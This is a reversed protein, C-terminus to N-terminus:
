RMLYWPMLAQLFNIRDDCNVELFHDSDLDGLATTTLDEPEDCQPIGQLEAGTTNWQHVYLEMVNRPKSVCEVTSRGSFIEGPPCCKALYSESSARTSSLVLGLLVFRATSM